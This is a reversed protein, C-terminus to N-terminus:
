ALPDEWEDDALPDKFKKSKAPTSKSVTKKPPKGKLVGGVPNVIKVVDGVISYGFGHCKWMEHVHATLLGRDMEFEKMLKPIDSKGGMIAALLKARITNERVPRDQKKPEFNRDQAKKIPLNNTRGKKGTAAPVTTGMLEEMDEDWLICEVGSAISIRGKNDNSDDALPDNSKPKTRIPEVYARLDSVHIIRYLGFQFDTCFVDGPKLQRILM